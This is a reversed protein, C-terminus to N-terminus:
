EDANQIVIEIRRNQRRGDDSSNDAIPNDEGVGTAKIENDVKSELYEKIKEAREQTLTQNFSRTAHSDTHSEINITKDPFLEIAHVVKDLLPYDRTELRTSATPFVLGKLRIRTLDSEYLIEAEEPTFLSRLYDKQSYVEATSYDFFSETNQPSSTDEGESPLDLNGSKIMEIISNTTESFGEDFKPTVSVVDSIQTLYKESALIIEETTRSEDDMKQLLNSIFIAHNAEYIAKSALEKISSDFGGIEEVKRIVQERYQESLGLTIPAYKRCKNSYAESLAADIDKLYYNIITLNSAEIYYKEAEIATEWYDDDKNNFLECTEIFKNEAAYWYESSFLYAKMKGAKERAELLSVCAIRVDDANMSAHEFNSQAKQKYEIIEDLDDDDSVSEIFLSKYYLGENYSLPSLLNANKKLATIQPEWNVIVENYQETLNISLNFLSDAIMKYEDADEAENNEFEEISAHFYCDAKEWFTVTISDAKISLGNNRLEITNYFYENAALSITDAEDLIKKLKIIDNRLEDPMYGSQYDELILNYLKIAKEYNNRSLLPANQNALKLIQEDIATFLNESNQGLMIGSFTIMILIINRLM